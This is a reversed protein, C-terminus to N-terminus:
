HVGRLFNKIQLFRRKISVIISEIRLYFILYNVNREKILRCVRLWWKNLYFCNDLKALFLWPDMVNVAKNILKMQDQLRDWNSLYHNISIKLGHVARQNLFQNKQNETIPLIDALMDLAKMKEAFYMCYDQYRKKSLSNQNQTNYSYVVHPTLCIRTCYRMYQRIMLADESCKLAPDFRVFHDRIIDMSFIKAYPSYSGSRTLYELLEEPNEQFYIIKQKDITNKNKKRGDIQCVGAAYQCDTRSIAEYLLAIGNQPVCDDSDVFCVYEGNASELGANRASSVGGNEKHIVCIRTDRKAYDDCIEPCHDPSGDDVLIIELERYTQAIVSEICYPLYLETKYVPIIISILPNVM